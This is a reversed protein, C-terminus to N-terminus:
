STAMGFYICENAIKNSDTGKHAKPTDFSCTLFEKPDCPCETPNWPPIKEQCFM